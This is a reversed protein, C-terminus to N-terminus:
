ASPLSRLNKSHYQDGFSRKRTLRDIILECRDFLYAQSNFATLTLELEDRNNHTPTIISVDISM